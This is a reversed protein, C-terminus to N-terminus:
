CTDQLAVRLEFYAVFVEGTKECGVRPRPPGRCALCGAIAQHVRKGARTVVRRVRAMLHEALWIHTASASM